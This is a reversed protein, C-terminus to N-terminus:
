LTELYKVIDDESCLVKCDYIENLKTNGNKLIDSLGKETFFADCYPLAVAAHQFDFLDNDELKRQKNLRLVAHCMAEIHLCPFNYARKKIKHTIGAKDEKKSPHIASKLNGNILNKFLDKYLSIIGLFEIEYARYFNTIDDAHQLIEENIKEISYEPNDEDIDTNAPLSEIVKKIDIEWAYDIFDKQIKLMEEPKFLSNFPINDGMICWAKAWVDLDKNFSIDQPYNLMSFVNSIEHEVRQLFTEIIVSKSLESLLMSTENRLTMNKQKLVELFVADTIPCIIKDTEVLKKLLNYIQKEKINTSVGTKIERCKIWYKLDLYIKKRNSISKQLIRKKAQLYSFINDQQNM